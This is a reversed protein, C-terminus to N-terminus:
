QRQEKAAAEAAQQKRAKAITKRIDTAVAPVYRTPRKVRHALPHAQM